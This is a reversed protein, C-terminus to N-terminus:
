LTTIETFVISIKIRHSPKFDPTPLIHSSKNKHIEKGDVEDYSHYKPPIGFYHYASAPVVVFPAPM